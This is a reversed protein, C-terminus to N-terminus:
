QEDALLSDRGPIQNELSITRKDNWASYILCFDEESAIAAGADVTACKRLTNVETLRPM